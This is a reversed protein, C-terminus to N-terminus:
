PTTNGLFSQWVFALSLMLIATSFSSMTKLHLSDSSSSTPVQSSNGGSNTAEQTFGGSSSSSAPAHVQVPAPSSALTSTNETFCDSNKWGLIRRERDFVVHLGTLFNQGFINIGDLNVIALCYAVMTQSRLLIIPHNIAFVSGGNTTFNIEPLFISTQTTNLEYCYEFTFNSAVNIRREQVQANFSQTILTYMPDSLSTFSTGSDVIAPFGINISTTGVFIETINIIYTPHRSNMVLPTEQQDSSGKDGFNIRGIGRSGFCMSFSDSTFGRSALISPVSIRDLGLGFLGNPAAGDLFSGTQNNGCGFVIPAEVVQPSPGETMLYLTDEVLVGSSSTNASLYDVQYPCSNTASTCANPQDCLTNNCFVKQSTSSNSSSYTNFEGNQQLELESCSFCGRRQVQLTVSSCQRCDCPVWFLDSGTDLAVFFTLNPTGLEVFAYHLFGLSSIRLTANSDAFSLVSGDGSALSRGRLARDHDALADYYEVTDKEPWWVGPVARAEAWERVRDSFRHHFEFGIGAADAAPVLFSALLLLVGSGAAASSASAM